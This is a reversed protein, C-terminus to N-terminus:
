STKEGCKACFKANLPLEQGCSLCIKSKKEEKQLEELKSGCVPCFKADGEIREGCFLCDIKAISLTSVPQAHQLMQKIPVQFNGVRVEIPITSLISGRSSLTATLNFVGEARPLISFLRSKKHNNGIGGYREVRILMKIEPPGTLIVRVQPLHYGQHNQVTLYFERKRNLTGYVVKADNKLGFKIQGSM